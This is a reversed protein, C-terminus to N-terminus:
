RILTVKKGAQREGWHARVLYVGSALNRGHDDRGDWTLGHRLGATLTGHHLTRVKYGRVDYVAIDVPGPTSGSRAVAPLDLEITVRPNCPNPFCRLALGAAPIGSDVPSPDTPSYATVRYTLVATQAAPDSSRIQLYRYNNPAPIKLDRTYSSWTEWEVLALDDYWSYGTGSIPPEHGCRM